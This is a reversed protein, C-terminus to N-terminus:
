CMRVMLGSRTLLSYAIPDLNQKKAASNNNGMNVSVSLVSYSEIEGSSDYGNEHIYKAQYCVAKKVCERQFPTLRDFGVGKIRNFTVEDIKIEAQSLLKKWAKEDGVSAIEDTTFFEYLFNVDTYIM